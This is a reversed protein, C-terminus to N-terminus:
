EEPFLDVSHIEELIEYPMNCDNLRAPIIYVDKDPFNKSVEIAYKLENQIYGIKEVSKSSFLPIFFRSNKIAQYIAFKWKYGPLIAEKDLWPNLGANKLDKYVREASQADERAYSIFITSPSADM